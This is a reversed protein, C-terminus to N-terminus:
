EPQEVLWDRPTLYVEKLQHEQTGPEAQWDYHWSVRPPLSMLISETRGGSQLGFLTGRDYVLNFEVYRGRRLWQFAQEREGYPMDRRRVVIPLYAELFHNGVSRLFRFSEDFGGEIFDDFFIGGIGRAEGRHQLFFYQDCWTKLRPYLNEGFGECAHAATRHWHIADEVFGYYPTLDFGGGFWWRSDDVRIFRVNMHTTPVYPNLPHIVLSVGMASFPRDKLDTRKATAAAPLEVGHISSFNVGAKEFLRGSELVRTIGGGGGAYSWPDAVFRDSGGLQELAQCINQQLGRLYEEVRAADTITCSAVEAM